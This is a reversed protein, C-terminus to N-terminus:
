NGKELLDMVIQRIEPINIDKFWPNRRLWINNRPSPHPLPLYHPLYERWSRVTETLNSKEVSKLYKAQAYTGVLLSLRVNKLESTLRAHWLPFCEKRPPLDGSAAPGPYCFGIPVLAVKKANYFTARSLGLWDRLRDGSADDWPIGSQHVRLGPAQGVILLRASANAQV